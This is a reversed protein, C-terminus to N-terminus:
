IKFMKVPYQNVLVDDSILTIDEAIAQSIILRDFPDRHILPLDNLAQLHSYEIDLLTFKNKLIFNELEKISQKLHLKGSSSKIVIEWLSGKSILITNELNKIEAVIAQSINTNEEIYWLFIHTDILYDM